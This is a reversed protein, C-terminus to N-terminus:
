PRDGEGPNGAAHDGPKVDVELPWEGPPLEDREDGENELEDLLVTSFVHQDVDGEFTGVGFGKVDADQDRLNAAAANAAEARKLASEAMGRAGRALEGAAETRRDLLELAAAPGRGRLAAQLMRGGITVALTIAGVAASVLVGLTQESRDGTIFAVVAAVFAATSVGLGVKTGLGVPPDTTRM